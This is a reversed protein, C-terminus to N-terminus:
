PAQDDFRLVVEFVSGGTDTLSVDGDLRRSLRQVLGLGGGALVADSPEWLAGIGNDEVKISYTSGPKADAPQFEVYVSILRSDSPRGVFAHQFANRLLEHLVAGIFLAHGRPVPTQSVNNLVIAMDEDAELQDHLELTIENVFAHLDTSLSGLHIANCDNLVGLAEIRLQLWSAPEASSTVSVSGACHDAIEQTLSLQKASDQWALALSENHGEIQELQADLAQETDEQVKLEHARERKAVSIRVWAVNILYVAIAILTLYLAWAWQTRWWPPRVHIPLHITNSTELRSPDVGRALVTYEGPPLSAITLENISGTRIWGKQLGAIQFMYRNDLRNRFDNM